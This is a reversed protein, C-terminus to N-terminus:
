IQHLRLGLSVVADTNSTSTAHVNHPLCHSSESGSHSNKNKLLVAPTQSVSLSFSAYIRREYETLFLLRDSVWVEKLHGPNYLRVIHRLFFIQDIDNIIATSNLYLFQSWILGLFLNTHTVILRIIDSAM